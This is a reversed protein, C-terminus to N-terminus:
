VEKKILNITALAHALNLAAQSFHMAEIPIIASHAKSVLAKIAAEIETKM